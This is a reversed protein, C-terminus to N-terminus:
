CQIAVYEWDLWNVNKESIQCFYIKIRFQKEYYNM